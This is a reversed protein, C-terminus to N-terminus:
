LSDGAGDWWWVMDSNVSVASWLRLPTLVQCSERPEEWVYLMVVEDHGCGSGM